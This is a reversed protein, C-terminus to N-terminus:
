GASPTVDSVPVASEEQLWGEAQTRGAEYLLAMFASHTNLRSHM